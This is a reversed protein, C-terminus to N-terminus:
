RRWEMRLEPLGDAGEAKREVVEFGERAYFRHAATNPEHTWLQLYERGVKARDLLAKGLGQGPADLYLAGIQGTEPNLSLYGETPDGVLWIEREPLAASIMGAIEEAAVVRPMWDTRDIWDNIIRACDTADTLEARRIPAWQFLIDALGEENDGETRRVECFGEREYFRRAGDNAVFTWLQLTPQLTKAHDLLAKGNGQGPEAAFLATVERDTEDLSLFGAVPDGIVFVRRKPFVVERYHREIDDAAHLRPMWACDEIWANKIAACVTADQAEGERINAGGVKMPGLIDRPPKSPCLGELTAFVVDACDFRMEMGQVCAM